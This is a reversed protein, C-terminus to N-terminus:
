SMVQFRGDREVPSLGAAEIGRRVEELPARRRGDPAEDSATVGDFDDAGFTLAVQALKPGYRLWDIQVSPVNPAALRAIAVAKVDDYGTTPQFPQLVTPLPNITHICEYQHQLAAVQLWLATRQSAPAKEVTLRLQDLGASTAQKIVADIDAVSDVAIEALGYLGAARLDGLVQPPTIGANSAMREVDLWSFGAVPREGAAAKAAQTAAVAAALTLPVGTIRIERAATPVAEGSARDLSWTAVRLFTVRTAHLRRRVVDALMGLSLIDHSAALATIEDTTLNDGAGVRELARELTSTIM